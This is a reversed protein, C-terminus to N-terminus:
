PLPLGKRVQRGQTIKEKGVHATIEAGSGLCGLWYVGLARLCASDAGDWYKHDYFCENAFQRRGVGTTGPISERHTLSKVTQAARHM